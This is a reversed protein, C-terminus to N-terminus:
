SPALHFESCSGSVPQVEVNSVRGLFPSGLLCERWLYSHMQTLLCEETTVHVLNAKEMSSSGSSGLGSETCSSHLHSILLLSVRLYVRQDGERVATSRTQTLKNVQLLIAGNMTEKPDSSNYELEYATKTTM